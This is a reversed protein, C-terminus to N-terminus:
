KIWKVSEVLIIECAGNGVDGRSTSSELSYILKGKKWYANILYGKIQVYDDKEIKKLLKEVDKNSPVLHNNTVHMYVNEQTGFEKLIRLDIIKFLIHRFGGMVYEMKEHNEDRALKGYTLAVDKVAIDNYGSNGQFLTGMWAIFGRYNYIAVARGSVEYKAIKHVIVPYGAPNIVIEEVEKLNEQKPEPLNRKDIKVSNTAKTIATTIPFLLLIIFIVIAIAKWDLVNGNYNSKMVKVM